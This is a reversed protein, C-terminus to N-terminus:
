ADVNRAETMDLGPRVEAYVKSAHLKRDGNVTTGNRTSMELSAPASMCGGEELDVEGAVSGVLFPKEVGAPTSVCRRQGAPVSATAPSRHTLLHAIFRRLDDTSADLAETGNLFDVLMRASETCSRVTADSPHEALLAHTWERLVPGTADV